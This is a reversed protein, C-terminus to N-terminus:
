NPLEQEKYSLTLLLLHSFEVRVKKGGRSSESQKGKLNLCLYLKPTDTVLYLRTEIKHQTYDVTM